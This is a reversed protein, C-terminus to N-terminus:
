IEKRIQVLSDIDLKYENQRNDVIYVTNARYGGYVQIKDFICTVPVLQTYEYVQNDWRYNIWLVFLLLLFWWFRIRFRLKIPKKM